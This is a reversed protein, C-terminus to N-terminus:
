PDGQIGNDFSHGGIRVAVQARHLTLDLDQGRQHIIQEQQGPQLGTGHLHISRQHAEGLRGSCHGLRELRNGIDGTDQEFELCPDRHRHHGSRHLEPTDDAIEDVVGDTM